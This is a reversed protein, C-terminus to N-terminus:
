NGTSFNDLVTQLYKLESVMQSQYIAMTVNNYYVAQTALYWNMQKIQTQLGSVFIDLLRLQSFHDKETFYVVFCTYIYLLLLLLAAILLKPLMSSLFLQQLPRVCADLRLSCDKQHAAKAIAPEVMHSHNASTTYGNNQNHRPTTPLITSPNTNLLTSRDHPPEHRGLTNGHCSATAGAYHPQRAPAQSNGKAVSKPGITFMTKPRKSASSVNIYINCFRFLLLIIDVVLIVTFLNQPDLYPGLYLGSGYSFPEIRKSSWSWTDTHNTIFNYEEITSRFKYVPGVSPETPLVPAFFQVSDAEIFSPLKFSQYTSVNCPNLHELTINPLSVPDPQLKDFRFICVFFDSCIM